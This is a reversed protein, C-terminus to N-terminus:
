KGEKLLELAKKHLAEAKTVHDKINRAFKELATNAWNENAIIEPQPMKNVAAQIDAQEKALSNYKSIQNRSGADAVQALVDAEEKLKSTYALAKKFGASKDVVNAASFENAAAAFADSARSAYKKTESYNSKNAARIASSLNANGTKVKSVGSAALGYLKGLQKVYALMADFQTLAAEAETVAALYTTKSESKEVDGLAAASQKLQTRAKDIGEKGQASLKAFSAAINKPDAAAKSLTDNVKTLEAAALNWHVDANKFAEETKARGNLIGAGWLAGCSTLACCVLLVAIVPWLWATTGKRREGPERRTRRQQRTAAPGAYADATDPAAAPPVDASSTQEPAVFGTDEVPLDPAAQGPTGETPEM